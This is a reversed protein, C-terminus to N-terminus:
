VTDNKVEKIIIYVQTSSNYCFTDTFGQVYKRSDGKLHGGKVLADLIFKKGFAINDLDRRKNEETWIFEIHVPRTYRPVNMLYFVLKDEIDRKWKAAEFKNGRCVRIYDNLSPLKFPVVYRISM